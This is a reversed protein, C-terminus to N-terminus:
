SSSLCPDCCVREYLNMFQLAMRGPDSHEALAFAYGECSFREYLERDSLLSLLYEAASDPSRSDFVYGDITDRVIAEVGPYNSSIVPLGHLKAEIVALPMGEFRSTFLFIDSNDLKGDIVDRPCYGPFQVSNAIGMKTAMVCIESKLAGAGLWEFIVDPRTELVRTAIQLFLLPNKRECLEGVNIVRPAASVTRYPRSHREDPSRTDVTPVRTNITISNKSTAVALRMGINRDRETLYTIFDSNKSIYKELLLFINKRVVGQKQEFRWSHGSYIVKTGSVRAAVIGILGARATHLHIVDPKIRKIINLLNFVTIFFNIAHYNLDVTHLTIKRSLHRVTTDIADVVAHFEFKTSASGEVIVNIYGAVGGPADNSGIFLVKTRTDTTDM